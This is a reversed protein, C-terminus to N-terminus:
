TQEPTTAKAESAQETARIQDDVVKRQALLIALKKEPDATSEPDGTPAANTQDGHKGMSMMGKGMLLMMVGMGIPCGLALLILPLNEM